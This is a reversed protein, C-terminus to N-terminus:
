AGMEYKALKEKAIAKLTKTGVFREEKTPEEKELTKQTKLVVYNEEKNEYSVTRFLNDVKVSQTKENDVKVKLAQGQKILMGESAARLYMDLATENMQLDYKEIINRLLAQQEGRDRLQKAYRIGADTLSYLNFKGAKRIDIIDLDAIKKIIETLTSSHNLHLEEVMEGHTMVGKIELLQLIEPLNKISAIKKYLRKVSWLDMSEEYVSKQITEMTGLWAGCRVLAVWLRKKVISDTWFNLINRSVLMLHELAARDKLQWNHILEEQADNAYGIVKEYNKFALEQSIDITTKFVSAKTM